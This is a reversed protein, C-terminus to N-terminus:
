CDMLNEVLNTTGTLGLGLVSQTSLPMVTMANIGFEMKSAMAEHRHKDLLSKSRGLMRERLTKGNNGVAIFLDLLASYTGENDQLKIHLNIRQVHSRLDDPMRAVLRALYDTTKEEWDGPDLNVTRATPILFSLEIDSIYEFANCASSIDILRPSIYLLPEECYQSIAM